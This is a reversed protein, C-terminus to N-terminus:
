PYWLNYSRTLKHAPQHKQRCLYWVQSGGVSCGLFKTPSAHYHTKQVEYNSGEDILTRDFFAQLHGQIEELVLGGLPTGFITSQSPNLM